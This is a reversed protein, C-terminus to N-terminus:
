QLRSMTLFGPNDSRRNLLTVDSSHREYKCSAYPPLRGWYLLARPYHAARKGRRDFM